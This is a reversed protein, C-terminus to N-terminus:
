SCYSLPASISSKTLQFKFHCTITRRDSNFSRSISFSFKRPSVVFFGIWGFADLNRFTIGMCYLQFNNCSSRYYLRPRYILFAQPDNDRQRQKSQPFLVVYWKWLSSHWSDWYSYKFSSSSIFFLPGPRPSTSNELMESASAFHPSVM